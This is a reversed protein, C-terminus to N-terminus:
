FQEIGFLPSLITPLADKPIPQIPLSQASVGAGRKARWAVVRGPAFLVEMEVAIRIGQFPESCRCISARCKALAKGSIAFVGTLEEYTCHVFNLKNADFILLRAFSKSKGAPRDGRFAAAM